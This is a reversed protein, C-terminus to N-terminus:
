TGLTKYHQVQLWTIPNKKELLGIALRGPQKLSSISPTLHEQLSFHGSDILFKLYMCIKTYFRIKPDFKIKSRTHFGMKPDSKIETDFRIKPDSKIKTDLRNQFLSECNLEVRPLSIIFDRAANLM